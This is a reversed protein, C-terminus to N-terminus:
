LCSMVISASRNERDIKNQREKEVASALRKSQSKLEQPSQGQVAAGAGGAAPIWFDEEDKPRRPRERKQPSKSRQETPHHRDTDDQRTVGRSMTLRGRRLRFNADDTAIKGAGERMEESNVGSGMM